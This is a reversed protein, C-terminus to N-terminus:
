TYRAGRYREDYFEPLLTDVRLLGQRSLEIGDELVRLMGREELKGFPEAFRELIDVGFKDRFYGSGIRGLKLQLIMERTLREEETTSAPAASPSSGSGNAPPM